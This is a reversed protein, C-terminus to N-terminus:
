FLEVYDVGCGGDRSVHAYLRVPRNSLRAALLTAMAVRYGEPGLTAQTVMLSSCGAPFPISADTLRWVITYVGLDGGYSGFAPVGKGMEGTAAVASGSAVALWALTVLWRSTQKM